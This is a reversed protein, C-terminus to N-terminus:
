VYHLADLPKIRAAKTAPYLAAIITTVLVIATSVLIDMTKLKPYIVAGTGLSRASEMYFSFDLGTYALLMTVAAGTLAGALLGVIGLNIGEFLVMRWIWFPRTGISKMVGIERFREMIAMILTNAVSFVVTIFIILFMVYMMTDFLAVARLLNPAMDKWTLVTLSPETIAKQLRAKVSGVQDRHAVRVSVESIRQGVGFFQQLTRIGTYIVFKDFSDVPTQYLGKVTVAEGTIESNADQFMLIVKDGVTVDLKRALTRSLLLDRGEPDALFSGNGDALMYQFIGSVSKEREPDIGMILVGRSAESTRIMVELKMRPAWSVVEPTKSLISPLDAPPVFSHEIKMDDQFGRKQVSIHGLSTSITNEVMQHNLGNMIGMSFVLAFVGLGISSIVVISRRRNRWLNRWGIKFFITM